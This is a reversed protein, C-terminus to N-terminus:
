EFRYPIGPHDPRVRSKDPHAPDYAKTPMNVFRAWEAGRNQVGHVVKAPISVQLRNAAGVDIVNLKGFTVSGPRIDYLVVRLNGETFGLRDDQHKHYVWARVSGPAAGVLYIHPPLPHFDAYQTSLLVTLDGRGDGHTVLRRLRVGEIQDPIPVEALAPNQEAWPVDDVFDDLSIM